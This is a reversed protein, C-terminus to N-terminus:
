FGDIEATNNTWNTAYAPTPMNILSAIAAATAEDKMEVTFIKSDTVGGDLAKCWFEVRTGFVQAAFCKGVKSMDM